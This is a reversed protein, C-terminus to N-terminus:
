CTSVEYCMKLHLHMAPVSASRSHLFCRGASWSCLHCKKNVLYVHIGKYNEQLLGDLICLCVMVVGCAYCVVKCKSFARESVSSVDDGNIGSFTVRYCLEGKWIHISSCSSRFIEDVTVYSTVGYCGLLDRHLKLGLSQCRRIFCGLTKVITYESCKCWVELGAGPGAQRLTRREPSPLQLWFGEWIVLCLSFIHCAVISSCSVPIPTPQSFM